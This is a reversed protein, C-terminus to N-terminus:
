PINKKTHTEHSVESPISASSAAFSPELYSGLNSVAARENISSFRPIVKVPGIPSTCVIKIETDM